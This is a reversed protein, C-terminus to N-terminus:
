ECVVTGNSCSVGSNIITTGDLSFEAAICQYTGPVPSQGFNCTYTAGTASTCTCSVEVYGDSCTPVTIAPFAAPTSCAIAVTPCTVALSAGCGSASPGQPAQPVFVGGSCTGGPVVTGDPVAPGATCTGAQCSDGQTCANGTSCATADPVPQCILTCSKPDSVAVQCDKCVQKKSKKCTLVGGSCSGGTVAGDPAVPNSCSGTTPDCTGALHCLDSASCVVPNSGVCAGAWCTDTQTCANGDNCATGDSPTHVCGTGRVCSDVTCANGDDCSIKPGCGKEGPQLPKDLTNLTAEPETPVSATGESSSCAVATIGVAALGLVLGLRTRM